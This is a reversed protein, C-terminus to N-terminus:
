FFVGIEGVLSGYITNETDVSGVPDTGGSLDVTKTAGRIAYGCAGGGGIFFAGVPYRYGVGVQPVWWTSEWAELQTKNDEIRVQLRELAVGGYFGGVESFYYRAHAAVGFSFDLKEGERPFMAHSLYGGSFWRASLGLGLHGLLLEASLQPGFFVFGVPDLAAAGLPKDRASQPTPSTETKPATEAYAGSGDSHALAPGAVITFM